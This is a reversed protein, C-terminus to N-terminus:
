RVQLMTLRNGFVAGTDLYTQNHYHAIDGLPTHGFYFHDAGSIGEGLGQRNRNLRERSWVLRHRDVPKNWHYRASPYDAHAIVLTRHQVHLEVILPLDRCRLLAEGIEAQREADLRTFWDGGNMLWPTWDGDELAELAMEEHNGRVAKFWRKDLLALCGPSDPGRDILDGVSIVLDQRPDFRCSKLRAVLKALCGHLDGVIYVHRWSDGDIRQYM